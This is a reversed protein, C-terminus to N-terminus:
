GIKKVLVRISGTAPATTFSVVVTNVANRTVDSIVTEKTIFDYLSVEVDLSNLNHTVTYSTAVGNGITSAYSYESNNVSLDVDGNVNVVTVSGDASAISNVPSDGNLYSIPYFIGDNAQIEWKNTTENWRLSRNPDDGREVEIGANETATGVANSNLTIINDALLIQETNITTVTGSVTLNGGVVLDNTITVNDPLGISVTTGTASVSVENPTGGIFISDTTSDSGTLSLQAGALQGVVTLDYTTGEFTETASTIGTIHGFSDLTIDQIYTRGSNNVSTAPNTAPHATLYRGDLSVTLDALAGSRGLTLTGNATSFALEDVYNDTDQIAVWQTGNYFYLKKDGLTSDFYIQGEKPGSPPTGLPQIIANQIENGTLDINSLYKM